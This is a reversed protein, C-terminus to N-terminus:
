GAQRFFGEVSEVIGTGIGFHVAGTEEMNSRPYGQAKDWIVQLSLRNKQTNIISHDWFGPLSKLIYGHEKVMRGMITGSIKVPVTKNTDHETYWHPIFVPDM